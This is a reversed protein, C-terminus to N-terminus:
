GLPGFFHYKIFTAKFLNITRTIDFEVKTVKDKFM